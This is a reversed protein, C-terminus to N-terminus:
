PGPCPAAWTDGTWSAGSPIAPSASAHAAQPRGHWLAYARVYRRIADSLAGADATTDNAQAPTAPQKTEM